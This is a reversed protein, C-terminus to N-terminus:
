IKMFLFMPLQILSGNMVNNHQYILIKSMIMPKCENKQDRQDQRSDRALGGGMPAKDAGKPGGGIPPSQDEGMGFDTNFARGEM